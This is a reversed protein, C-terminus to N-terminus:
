NRILKLMDHFVLSKPLYWNTYDIDAVPKKVFRLCNMSKEVHFVIFSCLFNAYVRPSEYEFIYSFFTIDFFQISCKMFHVWFCFVLNRRSSILNRKM